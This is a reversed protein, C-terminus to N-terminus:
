KVKNEYKLPLSFILMIIVVFEIKWLKFKTVELVQASKQTIESFVAFLNISIRTRAQSMFYIPSLGAVGRAVNSM